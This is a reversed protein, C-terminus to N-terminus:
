PRPAGAPKRPETEPLEKPLPKRPLMQERTAAHYAFTAVVVAAQRLDDGQLHDYVDLTTHHTRTMYDTPDQIFQFGPLGASDFSQHDTGGTNRATVTTAELDRLPELWAEFIPVVALNEQAYIGRIRGTGNDLNFYASLEAHDPKVSLPGRRRRLFGPLEREEPDQPEPRSAFHQEVYARSGLFGQEEGSWLAVRITRRPQVGIAKLIRMAEMAVATGAANDSAGTGAHWSDMHAGVMVLEGTRDAGPIEAITNFAMPDETHFTVAVELELEVPIQRELLRCIRNYPEAAMVLRPVRPEADSGRVREGGVRVIGGDRDSVEFAALVKEEALFRRLSRELGFRKLMQERDMPFRRPPADPRGPPTLPFLAVEDLGHQDYREFLAQEPAKMERPESLFLIKGALTGKHKELDAESEFSVRAVPGRAAGQTGPSWGKPLAALPSHEPAVMHVATRELSWGPRGPDYSELHANALGWSELQERAWQNARKMQPSGTVRPGIVDTLYAATEMVKSNHVGEDRIRGVIGWDVPEEALLPLAGLVLALARPGVFVRRM